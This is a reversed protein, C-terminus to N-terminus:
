TIFGHVTLARLVNVGYIPISTVYMRTSFYFYIYTFPLKVFIM